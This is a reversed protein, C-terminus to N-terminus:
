YVLPIEAGTPPAGPAAPAPAAPEIAPSKPVSTDAESPVVGTVVRKWDIPMGVFRRLDELKDEHALLAREHAGHDRLLFDIGTALDGVRHELKDVRCMVCPEGPLEDGPNPPADSKPKDEEELFATATIIVPALYSLLTSLRRTNM